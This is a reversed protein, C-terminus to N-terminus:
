FSFVCQVCKPKFSKVSAIFLHTRKLACMRCMRCFFQQFLTTAVQALEVAKKVRAKEETTYTCSSNATCKITKRQTVMKKRIKRKQESGGFITENESFVVRFAHDRVSPRPFSLTFIDDLFPTTHNTGGTTSTRLASGLVTSNNSYHLQWRLAEAASEKTACNSKPNQLKKVFVFIWFSPFLHLFSLFADHSRSFFFFFLAFLCALFTPKQKMTKKKKQNIFYFPLRHSLSM